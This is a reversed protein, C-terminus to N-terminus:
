GTPERKSRGEPGEGYPSLMKEVYRAIVDLEVNVPDGSELHGLNTRELTEPILAVGARDGEVSTVTLSVGQLTISGQAIVYRAAGEPLEVSLRRSFGDPEASVVTGVGDVHGQVLHGGLPQGALLAPELNVPDGEALSGLSTMELTQNMAEVSFGAPGTEVVTLCAGNVAISDGESLAGAVAGEVVLRAGDSTRELAGVRGVEQILGTFM